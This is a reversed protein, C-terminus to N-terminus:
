GRRGRTASTTSACSTRSRPRRTPTSSIGAGCRRRTRDRASALGGAHAAAPGPAVHQSLGHRPRRLAALARRPPAQAGGRLAPLVRGGGARGPLRPAHARRAPASVCDDLPRPRSLVRRALAGRQARAMDRRGQGSPGIGVIDVSRHSVSHYRDGSFNEAPFKWNCPIRWKHIGGIVETGGERGDWADLLLDLYLKYGGLYDLFPPRPRIGPRGSRGKTTRWRPSRSSAGSAGTSSRM